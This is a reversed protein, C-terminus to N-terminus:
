PRSYVFILTTLVALTFSFAMVMVGIMRLVSATEAGDADAPAAPGRMFLRQVLRPNFAVQSGALVFLAAIIDIFVIVAM